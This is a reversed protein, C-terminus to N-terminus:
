PVAEVFPDDVEPCALAGSRGTGREDFLLLDRTRLAPALARAFDGRTATAPSGPGGDIAMVSTATPAPGRRQRVVRLSVQGPVSGSRDLAVSVRTCEVRAPACRRWTTAAPASAPALAAIALALAACRLAPRPALLGPGPGSSRRTPM